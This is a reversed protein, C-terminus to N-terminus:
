QLQEAPIPGYALEDMGWFGGKADLYYQGDTAQYLTFVYTKNNYFVDPRSFVPKLSGGALLAKWSPLEMKAFPLLSQGNPALFSQYRTEFRQQLDNPPTEAAFALPQTTILWLGLLLSRLITTM